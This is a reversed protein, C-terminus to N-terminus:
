FTKKYSYSWTVTESLNKGDTGSIVTSVKKWAAKVKPQDKYGRCTPDCIDNLKGVEEILTEYMENENIGQPNTYQEGVSGFNQSSSQSAIESLQALDNCKEGNVCHNSQIVNKASPSFYINGNELKINQLM